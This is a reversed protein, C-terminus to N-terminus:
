RAVHVATHWKGAIKLTLLDVNKEGRKWEIELPLEPIIDMAELPLSQLPELDKGYIVLEAKDAQKRLGLLFLPMPRDKDDVNISMVRLRDAAVPTDGVVLNWKRLWLQGVPIVQQAAVIKASLKKDPIVMAGGGEGREACAREPDVDIKIQPDAIVAQEACIKAYRRTEEQPLRTQQAGALAAVAILFAARTRTNM